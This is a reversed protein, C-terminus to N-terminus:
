NEYIIKKYVFIKDELQFGVQSYLNKAQRTSQLSFRTIGKKSIREFLCLLAKKAFGNRRFQEFISFFYLGAEVNNYFVLAQGIIDGHHSFSVMEFNGSRILHLFLIESLKHGKFFILETSQLWFLIENKEEIIKLEFENTPDYTSVELNDTFMSYWIDAPRFNVSKFDFLNKHTESIFILDSTISKLDISLIDNENQSFFYFGNPWVSDNTIIELTNVYKEITSFHHVEKKELLNKLNNFGVNM